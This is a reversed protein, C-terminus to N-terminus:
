EDPTEEATLDDLHYLNKRTRRGSDSAGSRPGCEIGVTPINRKLFFDATRACAADNQNYSFYVCGTGRPLGMGATIMQTLEGATKLTLGALTELLTALQHGGGALPLLCPGGGTLKGNTALGVPCGRDALRTALSAATELMREFRDVSQTTEFRDVQVAFLVKQQTSPECIKEQLRNLRASAKWHIYRAPGRNQYDRTGQLYIPDPVPILAGPNGYLERRPFAFPKLSILRPYVTIGPLSAGTKERPFFGLLDGAIIRPPGLRYIGRKLAVISQKFTAEQFGSLGTEVTLASRDDAGRLADGLCLTIRVWAPLPKTNKAGITLNLADGPFGKSKDIHIKCTIGRISLWSWINAGLVVSFVIAILVILDHQGTLLAIFLVLGAIAQIMPIIFVTPLRAEPDEPTM